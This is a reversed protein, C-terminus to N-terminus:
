EIHVLALTLNDSFEAPRREIAMEIFRRAPNEVGAAHLDQLEDLLTLPNRGLGRGIGDTHFAGLCPGSLVHEQWCDFERVCREAPGLACVHQCDLDCAALIRDTAQQQGSPGRYDRWLGGGDGMVAVRLVGRDLWVLTLTTQFLGGKKLIYKWTSLFQGEPCSAEPNGALEDALRGITLGAENFALRALAKPETAPGAEVLARVAVWCALSAACESRFSTTLGDSMALVFRLRARDDAAHPWWALAYDQNAGKDQDLPGFDTHIAATLRGARFRGSGILLDGREALWQRDDQILRDFANYGTSPGEVDAGQSM